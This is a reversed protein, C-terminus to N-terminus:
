LMRLEPDFNLRFSRVERNVSRIPATPGDVVVTKNHLFGANCTHVPNVMPYATHRM